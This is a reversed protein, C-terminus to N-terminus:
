KRNHEDDIVVAIDVDSYQNSAGKSRSGYVIVSNIYSVGNIYEVFDAILNEEYPTLKTMAIIM